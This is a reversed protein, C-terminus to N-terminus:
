SSKKSPQEEKDNLPVFYDPNFKVVSFIGGAINLLILLSVNMWGSDFIHTIVVVLFIVIVFALIFFKFIVNKIYSKFDNIGEFYNRIYDGLRISFVIVVFSHLFSLMLIMLMYFQYNDLQLLMNDTDSDQFVAYTYAIILTSCVGGFFLGCVINLFTAMNWGHSIILALLIIILLLIIQAIGDWEKGISISKPFIPISTVYENIDKNNEILKMSLALIIIMVHIALELILLKKSLPRALQIKQDRTMVADYHEYISLSFTSLIIIGTIGTFVLGWWGPLLLFLSSLIFIIGSIFLNLGIESDELEHDVDFAMSFSLVLLFCLTEELCTNFPSSILEYFFVIISQLIFSFIFGTIIRKRTERKWLRLIITIALFLMCFAGSFILHAWGNGLKMIPKFFEWKSILDRDNEIDRIYVMLFLELMGFIVTFGSMASILREFNWFQSTKENKEIELPTQAVPKREQQVSIKNETKPAASPTHAKNDKHSEEGQKLVAAGCRQCFKDEKFIEYGCNRCHIKQSAGCKTCYALDSRLEKGCSWCHHASQLDGCRHCFGSIFESDFGGGCSKCYSKFKEVNPNREPKLTVSNESVEHLILNRYEECQQLERLMEQPSAFRDKPSPMTAKVVLEKLRHSGYRPEPLPEKSELRRVYDNDYPYVRGNLYFYMVIGLSYMDCLDHKKKHYYIEPAVTTRTGIGSVTYDDERAEGFDGLMFGRGTRFDNDFLINEPKIDRHLIHEEACSQLLSLLDAGCRIAVEIDDNKNQYKSLPTLLPMLACYKTGSNNKEDVFVTFDLLYDVIHKEEKAMLRRIASIERPNKLNDKNSFAEDTIRLAYKKRGVSSEVMYVRSNAGSDIYDTIICNRYPTNRKKRDFALKVQDLSKDSLPGVKSM